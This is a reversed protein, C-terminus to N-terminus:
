EVVTPQPEDRYPTGIGLDEQDPRQQREALREEFYRCELAPRMLAYNLGRLYGRLYQDDVGDRGREPPTKTLLDLTAEAEGEVIKRLVKQYGDSALTKKLEDFEYENLAM